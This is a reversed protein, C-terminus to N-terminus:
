EKSAAHRAVSAPYPADDHTRTNQSPDHASQHYKLTESVIQIYDCGFAGEEVYSWLFTFVVCGTQEAINLCKVPPNTTLHTVM